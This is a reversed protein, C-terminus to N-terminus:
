HVGVKTVIVSNYHSVYLQHDSISHLLSSLELLSRIGIGYGNGIETLWHTQVLRNLLQVMQTKNMPNAINLADIGGYFYDNNIIETLISRLYVLENTSLTSFLMEDGSSNVMVLMEDVLKIEMALANLQSNIDDLRDKVQQASCDLQKTLTKIGVCKHQYIAQIIEVDM